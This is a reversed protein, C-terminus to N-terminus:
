SRKKIKMWINVFKQHYNKSVEFIANLLEQSWDKMQALSVMKINYGGFEIIELNADNVDNSLQDIDYIRKHGAKIDSNNFDYENVLMGMEKGILRHISKANPVTIFAVGDDSLWENFKTKMLDVPNDVHELVHNALIVDFKKDISFNEFYSEIFITKDSEFSFSDIIQKSGEIIIQKNCINDNLKGLHGNGLGLSLIDNDLVYNSVLKFANENVFKAEILSLTITM